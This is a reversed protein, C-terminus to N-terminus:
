EAAALAKAAQAELWQELARASVVYRRGRRLVPLENRRAMQYATWNSVGCRRAVTPIDLFEPENM